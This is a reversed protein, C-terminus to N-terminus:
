ASHQWWIASQKPIAAAVLFFAQLKQGDLDKLACSGLDKLLWKRLQSRTSSQTSPKDQSLVTADWRSAFEALTATRSNQRSQTHPSRHPSKSQSDCTANHGIMKHPIRHSDRQASMRSSVPGSRLRDLESVTRRYSRHLKTTNLLNQPDLWPM